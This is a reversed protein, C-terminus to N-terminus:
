RTKGLPVGDIGERAELGALGRLIEFYAVSDKEGYGKEYAAQLLQSLLSTMLM